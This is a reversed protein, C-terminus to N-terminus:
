EGVFREVLTARRATRGTRAEVRDASAMLAGVGRVGLWRLPEPEWERWRHGVWPLVTDDSGNDLVLDAITKGALASCGVGDGVYGGGWAFGRQRDFGVSPMWDRPVGLVGGWRRTIRAGAAAPFMVRLEDELRRFTRAHGLDGDTRSGFRYPAGRGGFVIRDDATRQAYVILHRGDSVTERHSWGLQSWVQQPLPETAVILSWVPALTRRRESLSRTYGETAQVVVDARVNGHATRVVREGIATAGTQEHLTAGLGEVVRALGRALRAPQIAACHPTFMAGQVDSAALRRTAEAADLWETHDGGHARDDEAHRRVREVQAATRALTLTGGKAVHADVAHENCWRGVDDVTRELARRLALAEDRGHEKAVRSWSAAFLASCWGGNRGSAGWGAIESEVLVVRLSPQQRLLHYATWLGTFGAGVIAVDADTSGPLAPRPTLDDGCTELWM